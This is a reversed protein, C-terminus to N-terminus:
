KGLEYARAICDDFAQSLAKDFGMVKLTELAKVTTGGKSSVMDILEQENKQSHLMMNAAGILTQCFLNRATQADIGKEVAKNVIIQTFLYIFAPSSGHIPISENILSADLEAVMGSCAFVAKAFEYEDKTTPAINCAVSAGCGLMLPTNPMVLVIKCNEGLINKLKEASIGAAISIIVHKTNLLPKIEKLVNPISQPKVALLIYKSTKVVTAIDEFVTLGKAKFYDKKSQNHDTLSLESAPLFNKTLIGNIIASAMNGGGIFGITAM